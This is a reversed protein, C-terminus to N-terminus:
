IKIFKIFKDAIRVFYVGSPFTSVNIRLYKSNLDVKSFVTEGLLNMIKIDSQLAEKSDVSIYLELFDTVPNPSLFLLNNSSNDKIETTQTTTFAKSLWQSKQSNNISKIRCTYEKYLSTGSLKFNTGTIMSDNVFLTTDFNAPPRLSLPPLGDRQVIQLHYGTAGEVPNWKLEFDLPLNYSSDPFTFKPPSLTYSGHFSLINNSAVALKDFESIQIIEYIPTETNNIFVNDKLIWENGGDTTYRLKTGHAYFRNEDIISLNLMEVGFGTTDWIIKWNQAGDTTKGVIFHSGESQSITNSSIKFFTSDNYLIFKNSLDGNIKLNKPLEKKTWDKGLNTTHFILNSLTRASINFPPTYKCNTTGVMLSHTNVVSYTQWGDNTKLIIDNSENEYKSPFQVIIGNLSDSMSLVSSPSSRWSINIDKKSWNKGGDVSKLIFSKYDYFINIGDFSKFISSDVLLYIINTTLFNWDQIIIRSTDDPNFEISKVINNWSSDSIYFARTKGAIGKIGEVFGFHKSDIVKVLQPTTVSNGNNLTYIVKWDEIQQSHIICSLCIIVLIGIIAKRMVWVGIKM